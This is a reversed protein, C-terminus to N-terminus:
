CHPSPYKNLSESRGSFYLGVRMTQEMMSSNMMTCSYVGEETTTFTDCLYLNIVGPFDRGRAARVEFVPGSCDTGIFIQSGSFYWGGLATSPDRGSTGLGSACRLIVNLLDLSFPHTIFSYDTIQNSNILDETPGGSSAGTV